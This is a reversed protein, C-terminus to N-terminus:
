LSSVSARKTPGTISRATEVDGNQVSPLLAMLLPSLRPYYIIDIQLFRTTVVGCNTLPFSKLTALNSYSPRYRMLHYIKQRLRAINKVLQM